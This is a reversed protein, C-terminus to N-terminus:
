RWAEYVAQTIAIVALCGAILVLVGTFDQFVGPKVKPTEPIVNAPESYRVFRESEDIEIVRRSQWNLSM